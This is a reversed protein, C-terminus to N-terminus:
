QLLHEFQRGKAKVCARLRATWPISAWTDVLRKKLDITDRVPTKYLRQQMLGWIRYDVPNLNPSNEKVSISTITMRLQRIKKRYATYNTFFLSKHKVLYLTLMHATLHFIKGGSLKFWLTTHILTITLHPCLPMQHDAQARLGVVDVDEDQRCGNRRQSGVILVWSTSCDAQFM